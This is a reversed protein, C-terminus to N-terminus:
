VFLIVDIVNNLRQGLRSSGERLQQNHLFIVLNETAHLQCKDSTKAALCRFGEINPPNGASYTEIFPLSWKEMGNSSFIGFVRM